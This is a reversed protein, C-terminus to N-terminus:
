GEVLRWWPANPWTSLSSDGTRTTWWERGNQEMRLVRETVMTGDWKESMVVDGVRVDRSQVQQFRLNALLQSVPNEAM